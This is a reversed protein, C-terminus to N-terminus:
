FMLGKKEDFACREKFPRTEEISHRCLIVSLWSFCYVSRKKPLPNKHTTSILSHNYIKALNILSITYNPNPSLAKNKAFFFFFLLFFFRSINPKEDLADPLIQVLNWLREITNNTGGNSWIFVPVNTRTAQIHDCNPPNTYPLHSERDGNMQLLFYHWPCLRQLKKKWGSGGQSLGMVFSAASSSFQTFHKNRQLSGQTNSLPAPNWFPYLGLFLFFTIFPPLFSVCLFPSERPLHLKPVIWLSWAPKHFLTLNVKGM